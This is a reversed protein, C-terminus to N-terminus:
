RSGSGAQCGLWRLSLHTLRTVQFSTGMGASNETRSNVAPGGPCTVSAPPANTLISARSTSSLLTSSKRLRSLTLCIWSTMLGSSVFVVDDGTRVVKAKGLEFRYDYDDLIRPVQGRLLRMYAPGECAALQPVAQEIDVADCPDVITLGPIRRMHRLNATVLVDDDAVAHAAIAIDFDEVPEGRRELIAKIEGFRESGADSWTARGLESRLLDLRGALVQKRKSRPLREIGYALEALVPQPIAVSSRSLRQLRGVVVAEGKM